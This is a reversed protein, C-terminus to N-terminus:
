SFSVGDFVQLRPYLHAQELDTASDLPMFPM